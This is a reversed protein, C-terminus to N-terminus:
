SSGLITNNDTADIAWMVNPAESERHDWFPTTTLSQGDPKPDM